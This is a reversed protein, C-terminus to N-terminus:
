RKHHRKFAHYSYGISWLAVLVVPTIAVFISYPAAVIMAVIPALAAVKFLRGTKGNVDSWVADSSLTWPTRVGIFWNRRSHEMLEGAFFFILALAPLIFAGFDFRYGFNWALSLTMLYLFFGGMILWFMDYDKRFSKINKGLPDLKPIGVYFLYLLAMVIPFLAVGWFKPMYEDAMGEANWHSAMPDPLYPYALLGIGCALAIM